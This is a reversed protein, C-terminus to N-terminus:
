VSSKMSLSSIRPPVLEVALDPYGAGLVRGQGFQARRQQGALRHRQQVKRAQLVDGGHERQDAVHADRDLLDFAAHADIGALEARRFRGVLQDLGHPARHEREAGAPASRRRWPTAAPPQAMPERGTSWCM